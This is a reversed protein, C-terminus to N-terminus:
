KRGFGEVRIRRKIIKYDNSKLYSNVDSLHNGLQMDKDTKIAQTVYSINEKVTEEEIFSIKRMRSSFMLHFTAKRNAETQILCSFQLSPEDDQFCCVLTPSDAVDNKWFIILNDFSSQRQATIWSYNNKTLIEVISSIVPYSLEHSGITAQRKKRHNLM